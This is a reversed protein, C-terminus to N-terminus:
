PIRLNMITNVFARWQDMDQALNIWDMGGRERESIDVKIDDVWRRRQRGLPRKGEPREVLVMYANRPVEM